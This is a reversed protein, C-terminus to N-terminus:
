AKPCRAYHHGDNLGCSPCVDREASALAVKTPFVRDYIAEAAARWIPASMGIRDLIASVVFERREEEKSLPSERWKIELWRLFEDNM